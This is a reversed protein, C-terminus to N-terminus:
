SSELTRIFSRLDKDNVLHFCFWNWPLTKYYRRLSQIEDCPKWILQPNWNQSMRVFYFVFDYVLKLQLFVFYRINMENFLHILYKTAANGKAIVTYQCDKWCDYKMKWLEIWNNDPSFTYFEILYSSLDFQIAVLSNSFSIIVFSFFFTFSEISRTFNLMKLEGTLWRNIHLIFIFIASVESSSIM